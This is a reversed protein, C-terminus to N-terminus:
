IHILSLHIGAHYLAENRIKNGVGAFIEQDMLVDDITENANNKILKKVYAADFGEGMIDIKPNFKEDHIDEVEAANVIYGNMEGNTFQLYFKANVKKRENILVSGFLGLHVSIITKTFHLLLYKGHVDIKKLTQGKLGTKDMAGYGGAELVKKAKFPSLKEALLRISPAEPM